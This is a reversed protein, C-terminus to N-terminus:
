DSHLLLCAKLIITCKILCSSRVFYECRLKNLRWPIAKGSLLLILPPSPWVIKPTLSKSRVKLHSINRTGIDFISVQVLKSTGKKFTIFTSLCTSRSGLPSRNLLRLLIFLWRYIIAHIILDLEHILKIIFHVFPKIAIITILSSIFFNRQDILDGTRKYCFVVM